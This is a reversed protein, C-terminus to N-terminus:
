AEMARAREVMYQDIESRSMTSFDKVETAARGSSPVHRTKKSQKLGEIARQSVRDEYTFWEKAAAEISKKNFGKPNTRARAIIWERDEREVEREGIAENLDENIARQTEREHLWAVRPDQAPAEDEVDDVDDDEDVTEEFWHPFKDRLREHLADEDDWISSEKRRREKEREYARKLAGLDEPEPTDLQEEEPADVVEDPTEDPTDSM